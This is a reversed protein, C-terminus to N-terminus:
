VQPHIHQIEMHENHKDSQVAELVADLIIEAGDPSYDANRFAVAVLGSSSDAMTILDIIDHELSVLNYRRRSYSLKIKRNPNTLSSTHCWRPAPNSIRIIIQYQYPDNKASLTQTM